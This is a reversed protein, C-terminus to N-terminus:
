VLLPTFLGVLLFWLGVGSAATAVLLLLKVRTAAASFSKLCILIVAICVISWLVLWIITLAEALMKPYEWKFPNFSFFLAVAGLFALFILFILEKSLKKM